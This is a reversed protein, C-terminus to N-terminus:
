KIKERESKATVERDRLYKLETTMAEVDGAEKAVIYARLARISSIDENKLVEKAERDANEAERMPTIVEANIRDWEEKSVQKHGKYNVADGPHWQGTGKINGSEDM